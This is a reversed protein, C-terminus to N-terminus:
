AAKKQTAATAAKMTEKAAATGTAVTAKFREALPARLKIPDTAILECLKQGPDVHEGLSVLRKQVSGAFPARIITDALKKEALRLAKDAADADAQAVSLNAKSTDFQQDSMMSQAHLQETRTFDGRAYFLRAQAQNLAARSSDAHLQYERPNITLLPQGAAVRDGFDALIEAVTGSVESAVVTKERPFLAGQATATRILSREQAPAVAVVLREPSAEHGDAHAPTQRCGTLGVIAAALIPALASAIRHRRSTV